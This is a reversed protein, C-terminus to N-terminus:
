FYFEKQFDSEVTLKSCRYVHSATNGPLTHTVVVEWDTESAPDGSAPKYYWYHSATKNVWTDTNKGLENFFYSTICINCCGGNAIRKFDGVKSGNQWMEVTWNTDDDNWIEAVFANKLVANGKATINSSGGVNSSRFWAYEYGKSGNYIQDGDYVRIQYGPDTKTGLAVWNKVTNGEVEYVSYGNPAGTM